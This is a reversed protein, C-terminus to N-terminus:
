NKATSMRKETIVWEQNTFMLKLLDSGSLVSGPLKGKIILTVPNGYGVDSLTTGTLDIETMGLKELEYLMETRDRSELYGVTEMRLIYRRSVQSIDEKKELLQMNNLFATMLIIVAIVVILVSLVDLVSGDRKKM